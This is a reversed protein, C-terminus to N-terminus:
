RRTQRLEAMIEATHEGIAPAPRTPGLQAGDVVLPQRVYTTDGAATSLTQFMGRSVVQPDHLVDIPSNVVGCPVGVDVLKSEWVSADATSIREALAARLEDQRQVREAGKIHRLAGLSLANCLPDWFHDEFAVSLTLWRGDAGAFIGYGPDQGLTGPAAGNAAPALLTTMISVLSDFMSVDWYGGHGSSARGTLGSLTAIAAFMGACLDAYSLSPVEPADTPLMGALAQFSLDHAPRLRFPGDQGFGSVSVYVLDPIDGQIVEHGLGLRDMVGPRFGEILVDATAILDRCTSLDSENKLDLAISRKGRNLSDYFASYARAPDGVGPREVQIIEAGLDSLILTAFPGPYQEALSVVRVGDLPRRSGTASM